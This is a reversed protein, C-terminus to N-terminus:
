RVVCSRVVPGSRVARASPVPGPPPPSGEGGTEVAGDITNPADHTTGRGEDDDASREDLGPASVFGRGGHVTRHVSSRTSLAGLGSTKLAVRPRPRAGSGGNAARPTEGRAVVCTGRENM